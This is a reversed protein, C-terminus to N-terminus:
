AYAHAHKYLAKVRLDSLVDWKLVLFSYAEVDTKWRRKFFMEMREGM